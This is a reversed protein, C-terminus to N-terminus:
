PLDTMRQATTLCLRHFGDPDALLGAAMGPGTGSRLDQPVIELIAAAEQRRETAPMWALWRIVAYWAALAALLGGTANQLVGSHHRIQSSEGITQDILPDLAIVHSLFEQPTHQKDSPDPRAIALASAFGAAIGASLGAFINGLRHRAGGFDWGAM